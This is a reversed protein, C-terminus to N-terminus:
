FPYSQSLGPQSQEKLTVTFKYDGQDADTPKFTISSNSGTSFSSAGQFAFLVDVLVNQKDDVNPLTITTTSDSSIVIKTQPPTIFSPPVSM